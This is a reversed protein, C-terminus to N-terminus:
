TITVTATNTCNTTLNTVTVAYTTTVAPTVTIEQTTATGWNYSCNDPTTNATLTISADKCITNNDVNTSITVSPIGPNSPDNQIEVVMAERPYFCGDISNAVQLNYSGAQLDIFVNEGQSLDYDNGKLHYFYNAGEEMNSVNVTLTADGQPLNCLTNYTKEVTFDIVHDAKLVDISDTSVCGTADDKCWVRYGANWLNSYISDVMNTYDINLLGEDGYIKFQYGTTAPATIAISGNPNIEFQNDRCVSNPNSIIALEPYIVNSIVMLTEQSSTCGTLENIIQVNYVGVSLNEFVNESSYVPTDNLKWVAYQYNEKAIFTIVGENNPQNMEDCNTIPTATADNTIIPKVLADYVNVTTDNVCYTLTNYFYIDYAGVSLNSYVVDTTFDEVNPQVEGQNVVAYTYGEIPTITIVGNGADGLCLYNSDVTVNMVPAPRNNTIEYSNLAMCATMTDLVVYIYNNAVLGNIVNNTSVTDIVFLPAGLHVVAYIYNENEITPQIDIVGNGNEGCLTNEACNEANVGVELHSVKRPVKVIDVFPCGQPSIIEIEYTGVPLNAFVVPTNEVSVVTDIGAISYQVNAPGQISIQGDENPHIEKISNIINAIFPDNYCTSNSDVTYVIDPHIPNFNVSVTTDLICGSTNQISITHIGTNLSDFENNTTYVSEDDIKYTYNNETTVVLKGDYPLM